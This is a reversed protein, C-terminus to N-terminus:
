AYLLNYTTGNYTVTLTGSPQAPVTIVTPTTNIAKNQTAATGTGTPAIFFSSKLREIFATEVNRDITSSNSLSDIQKQMADLQKQLQQLNPPM